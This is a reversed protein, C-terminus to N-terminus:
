DSDNAKDICNFATLSNDINMYFGSTHLPGISQAVTWNSADDSVRANGEFNLLWYDPITFSAAPGSCDKPGLSESCEVIGVRTLRIFILNDGNTKPGRFNMKISIPLAKRSSEMAVQPWPPLLDPDPAATTDPPTVAGGVRSAPGLDVPVRLCLCFYNDGTFVLQENAFPFYLSSFDFGALTANPVSAPVICGSGTCSGTGPTLGFLTSSGDSNGTQNVIVKGQAAVGAFSLEACPFGVCPDGQWNLDVSSTSLKLGAVSTRSDTVFLHDEGLVADGDNDSFYSTLLKRALPLQYKGLVQNTDNM